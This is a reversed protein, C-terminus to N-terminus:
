IYLAWKCYVTVPTIVYEVLRGSRISERKLTDFSGKLMDYQNEMSQLCSASVAAKKTPRQSAAQTEVPTQPDRRSGTVPVISQEEKVAILPQKKKTAASVTSAVPTCQNEKNDHGASHRQSASAPKNHAALARKSAPKPPRVAASNGISALPKARKAIWAELQEERSKM